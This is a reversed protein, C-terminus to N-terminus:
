ESCGFCRLKKVDSITSDHLSYLQQPVEQQIQFDGKEGNM